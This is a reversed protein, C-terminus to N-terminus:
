SHIKKILAAKEKATVRPSKALSVAKAKIKGRSVFRKKTM